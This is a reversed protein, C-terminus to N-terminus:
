ERYDEPLEQLFSEFTTDVNGFPLSMATPGGTAETLFSGQVQTNWDIRGGMGPFIRGGM